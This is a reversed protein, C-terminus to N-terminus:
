RGGLLVAGLVIMSALTLLSLLILWPSASSVIVLILLVKLFVDFV